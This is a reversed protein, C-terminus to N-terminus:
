YRFALPKGRQRPTHHRDMPQNPCCRDGAYKGDHWRYLVYGAGEVDGKADFGLTGIVTETKGARLQAAVKETDGPGRRAGKALVQFAAYTYLTYGEPEYGTKASVM